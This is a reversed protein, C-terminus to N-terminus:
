VSLAPLDPSHKKGFLKSLWGSRPAETALKDLATRLNVFAASNKEIVEYAGIKKADSISKREPRVMMYVVPVRSMKRIVKKLFQMSSRDKNEMKEDLIIIFPRDQKESLSEFELASFVSRVQFGMATLHQTMLKQQASDNDLILITKM